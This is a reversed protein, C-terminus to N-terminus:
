SASAFPAGGSSADFRLLIGAQDDLLLDYSDAPWVPSDDPDTLSGQLRYCRRGAHVAMGAPELDLQGLIISADIMGAVIAHLTLRSPDDSAHSVVGPDVRNVVGFDWRDGDIVLM